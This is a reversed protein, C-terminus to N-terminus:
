SGEKTRWKRGALPSVKEQLSGARCPPSANVEEVRHLLFPLVQRGDVGQRPNQRLCRGQVGELFHSLAFLHRWPLAESSAPRPDRVVDKLLETAPAVREKVM